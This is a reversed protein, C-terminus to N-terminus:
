DTGDHEKFSVTFFDYVSEAFDPAVLQFCSVTYVIV